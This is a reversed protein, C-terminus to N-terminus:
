EKTEKHIGLEEARERAIYLRAPPKMSELRVLQDLYPQIAEQYERHLQAIRDRLFEEEDAYM